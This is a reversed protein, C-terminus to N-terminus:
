RCVPIISVAQIVGAFVYMAKFQCALFVNTPRAQYHRLEPNGRQYCIDRLSGAFTEPEILAQSRMGATGRVAPVRRRAGNIM